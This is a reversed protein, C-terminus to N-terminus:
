LLKERMEIAELGAMERQFYGNVIPICSGLTLIMGECLVLFGNKTHELNSTIDLYIDQQIKATYKSFQIGGYIALGIGLVVGAVGLRVNRTSKRILEYLTM